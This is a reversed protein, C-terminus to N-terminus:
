GPETFFTRWIVTLASQAAIIGTVIAAQQEAPIDVGWIAVVSCVAGIVQTLNIKSAKPANMHGKPSLQPKPM